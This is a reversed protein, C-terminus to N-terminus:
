YLIKSQRITRYSGSVYKETDKGGRFQNTDFGNSRAISYSLFEVPITFILPSLVENKPTKVLLHHPEKKSEKYLDTNVLVLTKANIVDRIVPEIEKIRDFTPFDSAIFIVFSNEDTIFYNTHCYEEIDCSFGNLSFEFMKYAGFLGTPGNAGSSVFIIRSIGRTLKNSIKIYDQQQNIATNVLEFAERILALTVEEQSTSFATILSLAGLNALYTKTQAIDHHYGTYEKAGETVYSSTELTEPPSAHILLTHDVETSIRGQPNDTVGITKARYKRAFRLAEIVRPTNGSVSIGIVASNQLYEPDYYNVFEFPAIHRIDLDPRWRQGLHAGFWAACYSDGSGTLIIKEIQSQRLIRGIKKINVNNLLSNLIKPQELMESLMFDPNHNIKPM